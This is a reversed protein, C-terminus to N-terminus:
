QERSEERRFKETIRPGETAYKEFTLHHLGGQSTNSRQSHRSANRRQLDIEPFFKTSWEKSFSHLQPQLKRWNCFAQQLTHHMKDKLRPSLSALLSRIEDPQSLNVDCYAGKSKPSYISPVFAGKFDALIDQKVRRRQENTVCKFEHELKSTNTIKKLASVEVPEFSGFKHHAVM